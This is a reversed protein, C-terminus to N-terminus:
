DKNNEKLWELNSDIDPPSTSFNGQRADELGRNVKKLAEKNKYLWAEKSGNINETM